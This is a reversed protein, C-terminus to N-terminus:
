FRVLPISIESAQFESPNNSLLKAKKKKEKGIPSFNSNDKNDVETDSLTGELTRQNESPAEEHRNIKNNKHNIYNKNRKQPKLLISQKIISSRAHKRILNVICINFLLILSFPIIFSFLADAIFWILKLEEHCDIYNNAHTLATCFIFSSLFILFIIVIPSSRNQVVELPYRVATYRQITFLVTFCASLLEALHSLFSIIICLSEIKGSTIDHVVRIL